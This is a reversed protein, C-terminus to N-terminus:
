PSKVPHVDFPVPARALHMGHRRTRMRAKRALTKAFFCSQARAHMRQYPIAAAQQDLQFDVRGTSVPVGLRLHSWFPEVFPCHKAKAYASDSRVLTIRDPLKHLPGTVAADGLMNEPVMSPLHGPQFPLGSQLLGYSAALSDALPDQSDDVPHRDGAGKAFLMPAIDIPRVDHRLKEAGDGM